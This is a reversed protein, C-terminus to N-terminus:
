PPFKLMKHSRINKQLNSDEPKNQWTTQYLLVLTESFGEAEMLVSSSISHSFHLLCEASQPDLVVSVALTRLCSMYCWSLIMM